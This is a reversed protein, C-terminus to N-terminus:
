RKRRLNARMQQYKAEATVFSLYTLAQRVPIRTAKDIGVNFGKAVTVIQNYRGWRQQFTSSVASDDGSEGYLETFSDRLGDVFQLFFGACRACCEHPM